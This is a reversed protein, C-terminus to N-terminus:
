MAAPVSGWLFIKPDMSIRDLMKGIVVHAGNVHNKDGVMGKGAEEGMVISYEADAVANHGISVVNDANATTGSGLAISQNGRSEASKGIAM